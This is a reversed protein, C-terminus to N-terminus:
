QYISSLSEGDIFTVPFIEEHCELARNDTSCFIGAPPSWPTLMLRINEKAIRM